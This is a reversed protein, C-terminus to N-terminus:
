QWTGAPHSALLSPRMWRTATVWCRCVCVYASVGWIVASSAHITALKWRGQFGPLPLCSPSMERRRSMSPSVLPCLKRARSCVNPDKGIHPRSLKDHSHQM